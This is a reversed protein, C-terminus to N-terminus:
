VRRRNISLKFYDPRFFEIGYMLKTKKQDYIVQKIQFIPKGEQYNLKKALELDCNIPIIEALSNGIKSDRCEEIYSYISINKDVVGLILSAIESPFYDISYIVPKDDATRVRRCVLIDMGEPVSLHKSVDKDAKVLEREFFKVGPRYGAASIMKTISLNLDLTDTIKDFDNAIFTGIGQITYILGEERFARLAERLTLKNINFKEALVCEPPLKDGVKLDHSKIYDILSKKISLYDIM